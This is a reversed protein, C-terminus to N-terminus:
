PAGHQKEDSSNGHHIGPTVTGHRFNLCQALEGTECSSCLELGRTVCSLWPNLVVRDMRAAFLDTKWDTRGVIVYAIGAADLAGFLRTFLGSRVSEAEQNMGGAPVQITEM